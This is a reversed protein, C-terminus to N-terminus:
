CNKHLMVITTVMIIEPVSADADFELLWTEPDSLLLDICEFIKTTLISSTIKINWNVLSMTQKNTGKKGFM